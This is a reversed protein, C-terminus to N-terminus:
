FGFLYSMKVFVQNGLDGPDTPLRRQRNYGIYFASRATFDYAVLSNLSLNNGHKDKAYQALLRARWKSSFQYFVRSLYFQRHQYHVGNLLSENIDVASVQWRLRNGLRATADISGQRARGYFGENYQVIRGPQYSATFTVIGSQPTSLQYNLYPTLYLRTFPLQAFAPTFAYFRTRNYSYQAEAQWFNKFQVQFTGTAASDEIEGHTGNSQLFAGGFTLQRIGYRDIFPKFHVYSQGSWRDTQPEFGTNSMDVHRGLFEGDVGYDWTNSGYAFQSIWGLHQNTFGPNADNQNVIFQSNWALHQGKLLSLDVGHTSENQGVDGRGQRRVVSMWGIASKQFLDHQLRVVGFFAGPSDLQTQTVPDIFKRDQTFAELGGITWRGSRGTVKGGQLIRQPNGDSLREGIRRSFFLEFPTKFYNAGETFFKRKEPFFIEFRSLTPTFEDAETDAFDSNITLNATLNASLGYRADLGGDGSWGQLQPQQGGARYATSVFPILELNRGVHVNELEMTAARSPKLGGEYRPVPVMYAFENRRLIERCINIGWEQTSAQSMRISKFPIVVEASWGWDEIVSKAQWIGDWSFDISEFDGNGNLDNVTGDFEVGGASISFWYGTRRDRFTDILFDASDSGTPTDHGAMRHRIQKPDDWFKFGLYINNEDYFINAETRQSVPKGEDPTTQIFKTIPEVQKWVEEDLKGDVKITAHIKRINLKYAPVTQDPVGPPAGTPSTQAAAGLSLLLALACIRSRFRM